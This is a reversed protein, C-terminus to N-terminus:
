SARRRRAEASKKALAAMEAKLRLRAGKVVAAEDLDPNEKVIAAVHRALRGLTADLTMANPDESARGARAILGDASTYHRNRESM